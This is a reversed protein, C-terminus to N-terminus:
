RYRVGWSGNNTTPAYVGRTDYGNRRCWREFATANQERRFYQWDWNIGCDGAHANFISAVYVPRSVYKGM